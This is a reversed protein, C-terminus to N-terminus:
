GRRVRPGFRGVYGDQYPMADSEWTDSGDNMSASLLMARVWDPTGLCRAPLSVRIWNQSFDVQHRLRCQDTNAAGYLRSIGQWRGDMLWVVVNAYRFRVHDAYRLTTSFGITDRRQHLEAFRAVITIRHRGYTVRSGVLDGVRLRPARSVDGADEVNVHVVDGRGDRGRVTEARAPGPAALSLGLAILLV